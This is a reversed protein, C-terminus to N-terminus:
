EVYTINHGNVLVTKPVDAVHSPLSSFGLLVFGAVGVAFVHRPLM